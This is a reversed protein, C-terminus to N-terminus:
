VIRIGTEVAERVICFQHRKKEFEESTYCLMELEGKSWDWMMLYRPSREFFPIGKFDDSVIIIDYDSDRLFDARTRSGFLYAERVDITARLKEVFESVVEIADRDM